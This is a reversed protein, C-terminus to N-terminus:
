REWINPVPTDELNSLILRRGGIRYGKDAELMLRSNLVVAENSDPVGIIVDLGYLDALVDKYVTLLSDFSYATDLDPLHEQIAIRISALTVRVWTNPVDARGYFFLLTGLAAAAIANAEKETVNWTTLIRQVLKEFTM